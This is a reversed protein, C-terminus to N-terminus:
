LYSGQGFMQWFTLGLMDSIVDARGKLMKNFELQEPYEMYELQKHLIQQFSFIGFNWMNRNNWEGIGKLMKYFELYEPYELFEM